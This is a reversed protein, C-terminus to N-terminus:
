DGMYLTIVDGTTVKHVVGGEGFDIYTQEEGLSSVFRILEEQAQQVTEHQALCSHLILFGGTLDEYSFKGQWVVVALERVDYMGGWMIYVKAHYDGSRQSHFQPAPISVPLLGPVLPKSEGSIPTKSGSPRATSPEQPSNLPSTPGPLSPGKLRTKLLSM